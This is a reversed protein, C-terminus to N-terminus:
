FGYGIVSSSALTGLIYNGFYAEDGFIGLGWGVNVMCAIGQATVSSPTLLLNDQYSSGPGYPTGSRWSAGGSLGFLVDPIPPINDIGGYIETTTDTDTSLQFVQGRTGWTSTGDWQYYVIESPRYTYSHTNTGITFTQTTLQFGHWAEVRLLNGSQNNILRPVGPYSAYTSQIRMETFTPSTATATGHYMIYEPAYGAVAVHILSGNKAVNSFRDIIEQATGAQAVNSYTTVVQTGNMTGAAHVYTRHRLLNNTKITTQTFTLTGITTFLTDTGIVGNDQCWLIHTLGSVSDYYTACDHALRYNATGTGAIDFSTGWTGSTHRLGFIQSDGSTSVKQHYVILCDTGGYSALSLVDLTTGTAVAIGTGTVTSTGLVGENLDGWTGVSKDFPIHMLYSTGNFTNYAVCANHVTSTGDISKPIGMRLDSSIVDMQNEPRNNPDAELWPVGGNSNSPVGSNDSVMMRYTNTAENQIIWETGLYFMDTGYTYLQVQGRAPTTRDSAYFAVAM